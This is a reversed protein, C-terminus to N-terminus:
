IHSVEQLEKLMDRENQKIYFFKKVRRQERTKDLMKDQIDKLQISM